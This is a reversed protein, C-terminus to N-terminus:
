LSLSTMALTLLKRGCQKSWCICDIGFIDSCYGYVVFVFVCRVENFGTGTLQDVSQISKMFRAPKAFISNAFAAQRPTLPDPEPFSVLRYSGKSGPELSERCLPRLSHFRAIGCRLRLSNNCIMTQFAAFLSFFPQRRSRSVAQKVALKEPKDKKEREKCREKM